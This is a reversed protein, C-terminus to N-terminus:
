HLTPRDQGIGYAGAMLASVPHSESSAELLEKGAAELKEMQEALNSRSRELEAHTQKLQTLSADDGRDRLWLRRQLLEKLAKQVLPALDLSALADRTLSSPLTAVWRQMSEMRERCAHLERELDDASDMIRRLMDQRRRLSILQLLLYIVVLTAIVLAALLLYATM